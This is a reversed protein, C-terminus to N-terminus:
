ADPASRRLDLMADMEDVRGDFELRTISIMRQVIDRIAEASKIAIDIKARTEADAAGRALLALQGILPNLPNFIEHATARALAAVSRLAERKVAEVRKLETVDLVHGEVRWTPGDDIRAANALLWRVEGDRRRFRLEVNTLSRERELRAVLRDWEAPDVLFDVFRRAEGLITALALNGETIRGDTDAVFIGAPSREFLMRYREETVRLQREFGERELRQWRRRLFAEIDLDVLAVVDALAVDAERVKTDFFSFVAVPEGDAPIPLTLAGHLGFAKVFQLRAFRPEDMVDHTAITKRTDWVLGPLGIGRDVCFGRLTEVFPRHADDRCYYEHALELGSGDPRVLWAEAVAWGHAEALIKLVTALAHGGDDNRCADQM